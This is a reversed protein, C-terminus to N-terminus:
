EGYTCEDCISCYFKCTKCDDNVEIEDDFDEEDEEFDEENEEQIEEVEVIFEKDSDLLIFENEIVVKAVMEAAECENKARITFYDEEVNTIKVEYRKDEKREYLGVYDLLREIDLDLENLMKIFPIFYFNPKLGNEFRSIEAHSIGIKDALNRTSIGKEMRTNKIIEALKLYDFKM